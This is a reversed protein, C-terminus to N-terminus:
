KNNILILAEKVAEVITATAALIKIVKKMIGNNLHKTTIESHLHLFLHLLHMIILLIVSNYM